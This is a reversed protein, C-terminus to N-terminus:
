PASSIEIERVQDAAFNGGEGYAPDVNGSRARFIKIKVDCTEGARMESIAEIKGKEIVVRGPDGSINGSMGKICEGSLTWRMSDSTGSPSWQVDIASDKRSFRDDKAPSGISFPAPLTVMSNPASEGRCKTEADDHGQRTFEIRLPTNEAIQSFRARYWVVGLQSERDMKSMEAGAYATLVDGDSLDLFTNSLGGGTKLRAEIVTEEGDSAAELDAYIGDTNVNKSDIQECAALLLLPVSFYLTNRM